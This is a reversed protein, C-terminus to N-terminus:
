HSAKAIPGWAYGCSERVSGFFFNVSYPHSSSFSLLWFLGSLAVLPMGAQWDGAWTALSIPILYLVALRVEYGTAFDLVAVLAALALALCFAAAPSKAAHQALLSLRALPTLM